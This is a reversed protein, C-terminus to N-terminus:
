RLSRLMAVIDRMKRVVYNLEETTNEKGLSFRVSQKAEEESRGIARLVHSADGLSSTCASGGSACIGEHNLHLLLAESDVDKIRINLNGPMRRNMSGNVEVGDISESIDKWFANRMDALASNECLTKLDTYEIGSVAEELAAAMGVIGAVNETGARRGREQGGGHLISETDLGQRLYLFGIGKPGGFKHGAGSLMDVQLDQILVPIHGVAQVADTHFLAGKAHAIRAMEKIPQITGIENNVYMISVLLTNPRMARELQDPTVFGEKTPQLYTVEVGWQELWKMCELVAHHEFSSTIVHIPERIVSSKQELMFEKLIPMVTGLVAWNDAETGGSTFHIENAQAGLLSAIKKRSQTVAKKAQVGYSYIGGPNGFQEGLYPQMALYALESLATTAAHDLYVNKIEQEKEMQNILRISRNFDDNGLEKSFLDYHM